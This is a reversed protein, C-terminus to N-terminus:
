QDIEMADIFTEWCEGFSEYFNEVLSTVFVYAAKNRLERTAERIRERPVGSLEYGVRSRHYPYEALRRQM